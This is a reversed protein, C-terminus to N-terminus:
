TTRIAVVSYTKPTKGAEFCVLDIQKSTAALFGAIAASASGSNIDQVYVNDVYLKITHNVGTPTVTISADTTFSWAYAFKANSFVPSLTGATGALTLATLGGSAITALTPKGSVKITLEFSMPDGVTAEGPNFKTIVGSFTFTAGITAPFAIIYTDLTGSEFAADISMQGADSTDFFGKVSIEGGDKIGQMFTKYGDTIDLTTTEITDASKEPTSINTLSGINTGGKTLTTGLTRKAVV